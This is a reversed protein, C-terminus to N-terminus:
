WELEGEQEISSCMSTTETRLGELASCIAEAEVDVNSHGTARVAANIKKGAAKEMAQHHYVHRNFKDLRERIASQRFDLNTNTTRHQRLTDIASTIEANVRNKIRERDCSPPIESQRPIATIKIVTRKDDMPLASVLLHYKDKADCIFSADDVYQLRTGFKMDLVYSVCRQFWSFGIMPDVFWPM